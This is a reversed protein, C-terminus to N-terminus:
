HSPLPKSHAWLIGTIHCSDSWSAASVQAQGLRLCALPAVFNSISTDEGLGLKRELGWDSKRRGLRGM